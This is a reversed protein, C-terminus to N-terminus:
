KKEGCLCLPVFNKQHEKLNPTKNKAALDCIRSTKKTNKSIQHQIKERRLSVFACLKKPTRQSKTSYKKEGCLCLPVFNKQHEKLNLATNKAAFACLCL